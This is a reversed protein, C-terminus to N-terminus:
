QGNDGNFREDIAWAAHNAARETRSSIENRPRTDDFSGHRAVNFLM